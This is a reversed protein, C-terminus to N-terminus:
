DAAEATSKEAADTTAAAGEGGPAAVVAYEADEIAATAAGRLRAGFHDRYDAIERLTAARRAEASAIMRDIREIVDIRVRLTQAMVHDIGLGAGELLAEARGAAALERAAWGHALTWICTRPNLGDLVQMMGDAACATMLAAKLRRLRLAEWLQDVVDRIWAEEIVDAPRVADCVRALLTDYGARDDGPILPPPGVIAPDALASSAARAPLNRHRPM